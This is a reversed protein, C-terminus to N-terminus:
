TKQFPGKLDDWENSRDKFRLGCDLISKATMIAEAQRAVSFPSNIDIGTADLIMKRQKRRTDASQTFATMDGLLWLKLRAATIPASKELARLGSLEIAFAKRPTFEDIYGELLASAKADSWHSLNDMGYEKLASSRLTMEFRILNKAHKLLGERRYVNAPMAKSKKKQSKIELMKMYVSLTRNESHQGAYLTEFYSYTSFDKTSGAMHVRLAMMLIHRRVATKCDCHVALDVRYLRIDYAKLKELEDPQPKIGLIKM